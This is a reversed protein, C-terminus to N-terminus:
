LASKMLLELLVQEGDCQFGLLRRDPCGAAGVSFGQGRVVSPITLTCPSGADCLRSKVAGVVMNSLEGITDNVMDDGEFDEEPLDLMRSAVVRAFPATVLIYVVGNVEGVFGVSGAVVSEGSHQLDGPPIAQPEITLMTRFVEHVADHLLGCVEEIQTPTKTM